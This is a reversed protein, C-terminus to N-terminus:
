KTHYASFERVLPEGRSETVLLRLSSAEVETFRGIFKHGVSTGSCVPVWANGVRARVEFRRIREGRAIDEALVVTNVAVPSGGPALLIERHSGATRGLPRGFAKRRLDGFGALSASDAAPVLGSTDIVMGILMNANRGVSSYYRDLLEPPSFVCSDEGAKWLWGGNWASQRRAPFDAEGPCWVNGEPDGNTGKVDFSGGAGAALFARSWGPYPARGDENGVWRILNRCGPPGQFLIARPQYKAILARVEDAVGGSSDAAVGGDFWIESLGGYGNWLETLQDLVVSNYTKRVAAGTFGDPLAGLFTNLNTNYYLGPRIGYRACSRIFDRVIDGKGSRWPTNGVHYGHSKTPWLCFGTGHKAVLVAYAAGANKASALWQDTNLRSPHFIGAPPLTARRGYDFTAPAFINIDLHIIVGIERDAWRVQERTPLVGDGPAPRGAGAGPLPPGAILALFLLISTRM